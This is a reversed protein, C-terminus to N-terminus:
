HEPHTHNIGYFITVVFLVIFIVEIIAAIIISTNYNSREQPTITISINNSGQVPNTGPIIYKYITNNTQLIVIVPPVVLAVVLFVAALIFVSKRHM